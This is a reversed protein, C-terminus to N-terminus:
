RRAMMGREQRVQVSSECPSEELESASRQRNQKLNYGVRAKDGEMSVSAKEEFSDRQVLIEYTSSPNEETLADM